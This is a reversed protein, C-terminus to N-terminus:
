CAPAPQWLFYQVRYAQREIFLTKLQDTIVLQRESLSEQPVASSAESHQLGRFLFVYAFILCLLVVISSMVLYNLEHKQSFM